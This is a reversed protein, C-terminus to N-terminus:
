MMSEIAVQGHLAFPKIANEVLELSRQGDLLLFEIYAQEIGYAGGLCYGCDAEQLAEEIADEIAARSDVENGEQLNASPFRLYAIHAGMNRLDDDDIPGGSELFASILNPIRTVGAITDGRPQESQEHMQYGTYSELPSLKEWELVKEAAGFFEALKLLNTVKAGEAPPAIDISGIWNETGFEGLAEDLMLILIQMRDEDPLDAFRPHWAVIDFNQAEENPQTAIEFDGASISAEGDRLGIAMGGLTDPASAQRSGYFTWGELQPAHQLWYHALLQKHMMGEGSITFSHGSEEGPGFNWAMHPFLKSMQKGVEDAIDMIQSSEIKEFYRQANKPYWDWFKLVRERFTPLKIAEIGLKRKKGSGFM